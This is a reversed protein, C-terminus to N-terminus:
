GPSFPLFGFLSLSDWLSVSLSQPCPVCLSPAPPVINSSLSKPLSHLQPFPAPPPPLSCPSGSLSGFLPPPLTVSAGLYFSRRLDYHHSPSCVWFTFSQSEFSHPCIFLLVSQPFFPHFDLGKHLCITLILENGGPKQMFVLEDWPFTKMLM